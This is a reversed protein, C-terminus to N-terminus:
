QKAVVVITFSDPKPTPRRQDPTTPGFEATPLYLTHTSADLGMTRAGPMTKVTGAVVFHGASAEKIVTLTGDGGSAFATDTDFACADNGNGIPLEGLVDGNTTDLVVMKENRCGVFLRGHTPDIAIGTPSTGTGTKWRATVALTKLDVVAIENKDQVNVFARGKGDAALFEPKGGLDVKSAKATALDANPDLALLANADGCCVLVRDSGADYIVGDADDSADIKGLVENTKLDFVLLKADRGDTIFGRHASPVLATGHLGGGGPIDAIVKGTAPDIVQTHTSRTVYLHHNADVTVYDWRGEGGVKITSTVAYGGSAANADAPQARAACTFMVLAGVSSACLISRM